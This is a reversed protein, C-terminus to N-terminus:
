AAVPAPAPAATHGEVVLRGPEFFVDAEQGKTLGLHNVPVRIFMTATDAAQMVKYRRRDGAKPPTAGNVKRLSDWGQFAAYRHLADCGQRGSSALAEVANRVIVRSPELAKLKQLIDQDNKSTAIAQWIDKLTAFKKLPM